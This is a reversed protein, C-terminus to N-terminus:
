YAPRANKQVSPALGVSAIDYVTLNISLANRALVADFADSVENIRIGWDRFESALGYSLSVVVGKTAGYLSLGNQGSQTGSDTDIISGRRLLLMPVIAARVINYLGM